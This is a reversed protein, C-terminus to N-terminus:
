HQRVLVGAGKVAEGRQAPRIAIEVRLGLRNLLRFLRDLSYREVQGRVLASLKPQDLGLVKAAKAQTLGREAILNRIRLVLTAKALALDPRRFGLDAFVDGSSAEVRPLTEATNAKRTTRKKL